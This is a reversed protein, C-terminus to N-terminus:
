LALRFGLYNNRYAPTYSFRYSVRCNRAYNIWSGGRNVRYSGQAPGKPNRQNAKSYDGYWDQCWEWLNGSMDYIGLQNARKQGVEHPKLGSNDSYWGVLDLKDSGAYPLGELAGKEGGRGAFEWEAETPLQYNKGTEKSLWAAYAVADEWSVGAIPLKKAQRSYGLKKYFDNSGTEVHYESGPELWQPYHSRTADAFRLYEEVTVEYKGIAYADLTVRHAPKEREVCDKDRGDQCGMMFSGAPVQVMEPELVATPYQEETAPGTRQTNDPYLKAEPLQGSAAVIEAQDYVEQYARYGPAKIRLTYATNRVQEQGFDLWGEANSQIRQVQSPRDSPTLTASIGALYKGNMGDSLRVRIRQLENFEQEIRNQERNAVVNWSKAYVIPFRSLVRRAPSSVQIQVIEALLTDSQYTDYLRKDNPQRDYLRLTTAQDYNNLPLEVPPLFQRIRAKDADRSARASLRLRLGTRQERPSRYYNIQASLSNDETTVVDIGLIRSQERGLLTALNPRMAITDFFKANQLTNFISDLEPNKANSAFFLDLGKGHLAALRLKTYAEAKIGKQLFFDTDNILKDFRSESENTTQATQATRNQMLENFDLAGALYYLRALNLGPTGTPLAKQLDKDVSRLLLTEMQQGKEYIPTEGGQQSQAYLELAQNNYIAASDVYLRERVLWNSQMKQGSQVNREGTGFAMKFLQETSELKWMAGGLLLLLWLFVMLIRAERNWTVPKEVEPEAEPTKEQEQQNEALFQKLTNEDAPLDRSIPPLNFNSFNANEAPGEFVVEEM